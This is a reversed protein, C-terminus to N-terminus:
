QKHVITVGAVAHSLWRDLPPSFYLNSEVIQQVSDDRAIVDGDAYVYATNKKFGVDAYNRQRRLSEQKGMVLARRGM